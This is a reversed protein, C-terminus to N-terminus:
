FLSLFNCDGCTLTNTCCRECVYLHLQILLLIVKEAAVILCFFLCLLFYQLILRMETGRENVLLLFLFIEKETYTFYKHMCIYKICLEYVINYWHTIYTILNINYFYNYVYIFRVYYIYTSACFLVYKYM